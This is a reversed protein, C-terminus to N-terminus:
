SENQFVQNLNLLRQAAFQTSPCRMDPVIAEIKYYERSAEAWKKQQEFHWAQFLHFSIKNLIVSIIKEIERTNNKKRIKYLLSFYLYDSEFQSDNLPSLDTVTNLPTTDLQGSKLFDQTSNIIYNVKEANLTIADDTKKVNMFFFAAGIMISLYLGLGLLISPRSFLNSTGKSSPSIKTEKKNTKTKEPIQFSFLSEEGIQIYDGSTLVKSDIKEQNIWTGNVSKNSIVYLGDDRVEIIAHTDSVFNGKIVIDSKRHSGITQPFNKLQYQKGKSPGQIIILKPIIKPTNM